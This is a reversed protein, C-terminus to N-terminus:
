NGSEDVTEPYEDSEEATFLSPVKHQECHEHAFDFHDGQCTRCPRHCWMVRPPSTGPITYTMMAKKTVPHIRMALKTPDFDDRISRGRPRANDASARGRQATAQSYAHPVSDAWDTSIDTSQIYARADGKQSASLLSLHRPPDTVASSATEPRLLPRQHELRWYTEQIRLETRLALLTPESRFPTQILKAISPPLGDMVEHVLDTESLSSWGTKMLAVKIFSYRIVDENDPDWYRDRAQRRFITQPPEFTSKLKALFTDLTALAASRETAVMSAFWLRATETLTRPIARLLAREWGANSETQRMAQINAIFLATDEPVGSFRGLEEPKITYHRYQEDDGFEAKSLELRINKNHRSAQPPSAVTGVAGGPFRPWFGSPAALTPTPPESTAQVSPNSNDAGSSLTDATAPAPPGTPIGRVMMQDLKESIVAVSSRLSSVDGRVSQLGSNLSSIDTELKTRAAHVAEIDDKTAPAAGAARTVPPSPPKGSM